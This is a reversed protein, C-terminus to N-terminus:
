SRAASSSSSTRKAARRKRKGSAKAAALAATTGCSASISAADFRAKDATSMAQFRSKATASLGRWQAGLERGIDEFQFTPNDRAIKPRTEKVFFAYATAPRKVRPNDKKWQAVERTYRERDLQALKGWREREEPNLAGWAAGLARGAAGIDRPAVGAAALVQPRAQAQFLM